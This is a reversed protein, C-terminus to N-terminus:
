RLAAVLEAKNMSSRGEINRDTALDLLEAKTKSELEDVEGDADYDFPADDEVQDRNDVSSDLDSVEAEAEADEYVAEVDEVPTAGETDVDEGEPADLRIDNTTTVPDYASDVAANDAAEQAEAVDEDSAPADVFAPNDDESVDVHDTAVGGVPDQEGHEGATPRTATPNHASDTQAEARITTPSFRAELETEFNERVGDKVEEFTGATVVTPDEMVPAKQREEWAKAHIEDLPNGM